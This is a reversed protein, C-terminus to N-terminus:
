CLSIRKNNERAFTCFVNLKLLIFGVFVFFLMWIPFGM